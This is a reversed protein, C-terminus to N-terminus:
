AEFLDQEEEIRNKPFSRYTRQVKPVLGKSELEKYQSTEEAVFRRIGLHGSLTKILKSEFVKVGLNLRAISRKFEEEEKSNKFRAIILFGEPDIIGSMFIVTDIRKKVFDLLFRQRNKLFRSRQRISVMFLKILPEPPKDMYLTSRLLMGIDQMRAFDFGIMQNDVGIERSMEIFRRRSGNNLAQLIRKYSIQIGMQEILANTLPFFGFSPYLPKTRPISSYRGLKNMFSYQFENAEASNRAAIYVFLSYQGSLRAIYQPLYSKGIAEMVEKNSPAKGIFKVLMAFDEFGLRNVQTHYIERRSKRRTTAIFEYKWIRELNIEPVFHLGYEEVLRGIMKYVSGRQMGIQQALKDIGARSNMSLETLLKAEAQLQSSNKQGANGKKGPM